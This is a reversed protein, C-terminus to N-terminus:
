DMISQGDTSQGHGQAPSLASFNIFLQHFPASIGWVNNSEGAMRSVM